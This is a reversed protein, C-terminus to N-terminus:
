EDVERWSFVITAKEAYSKHLDLEVVQSDNRWYGCKTCMDIFTKCYNDLDPATTKFKGWKSKEKIDFYFFLSLKLPKISPQEPAHPKLAPYFAQEAAILKKDKFYTHTRGNYRKMQNTSRPMTDFPLFIIQIDM